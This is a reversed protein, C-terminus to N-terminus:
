HRPTNARVDEAIRAAVSRDGWRPLMAIRDRIETATAVHTDHVLRLLAPAIALAVQRAAAHAAEEILSLVTRTESASLGAQSMQVGLVAHDAATLLRSSTPDMGGQRQVPGTM